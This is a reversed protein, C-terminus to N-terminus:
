KPTLLANLEAFVEKPTEYVKAVADTVEAPTSADIYLKMKEAEAKFQPDALMAKFAARLAEV